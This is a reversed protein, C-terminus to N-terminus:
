NGSGKPQLLHFSIKQPSELDNLIAKFLSTDASERIEVTREHLPLERKPLVTGKRHKLRKAKYTAENEVQETRLREKELRSEELRAARAVESTM